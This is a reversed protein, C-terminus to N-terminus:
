DLAYGVSLETRVGGIGPGIFGVRARWFLSEGLFGQLGFDGRIGLLWGKADEDEREFYTLSPGLAVFPNLASETLTVVAVFGLWGDGTWRGRPGIAGSGQVEFGVSLRGTETTLDEFAISGTPGFGTGAARPESPEVVAIAGASLILVDRAEAASAVLAVAVALLASRWLM